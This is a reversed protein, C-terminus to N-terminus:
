QQHHIPLLSEENHVLERKELPDSIQYYAISSICIRGDTPSPSQNYQISPIALVTWTALKVGFYGIDHFFFALWSTPWHKNSCVALQHKNISSAHRTAHWSNAIRFLPLSLPQNRSICAHPLQYCTQYIVIYYSLM